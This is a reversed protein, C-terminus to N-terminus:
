ETVEEPQDPYYVIEFRSRRALEADIAHKAKSFAEDRSPATGEFQRVDQRVHSVGMGFDLGPESATFDWLGEPPKAKGPEWVRPPQQTLTIRWASM